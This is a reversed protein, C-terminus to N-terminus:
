SADPLSRGRYREHLRRWRRRAFEEEEPNRLNWNLGVASLMLANTQRLKQQLTMQRLEETEMEELRKWRQRYLEIRKKSTSADNGM